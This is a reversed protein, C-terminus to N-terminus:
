LAAGIIHNQIKDDIAKIKFILCENTYIQLSSIDSLFGSCIKVDIESLQGNIRLLEESYFKMFLRFNKSFESKKSNGKFVQRFVDLFKTLFLINITEKEEYEYRDTETGFTVVSNEDSNFSEMSLKRGIVVPSGRPDILSDLSKSHSSSKTSVYFNKVNVGIPNIAVGSSDSTISSDSLKNKESKYFKKKKTHIKM